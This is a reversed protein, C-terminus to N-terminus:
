KESRVSQSITVTEERKTPVKEQVKSLYRDLWDRVGLIVFFIGVVAIGICIWNLILDNDNM